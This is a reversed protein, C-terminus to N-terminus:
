TNKPLVTQQSACLCEQHNDRLVIFYAIANKISTAILLSAELDAQQARKKISTAHKGSFKRQM